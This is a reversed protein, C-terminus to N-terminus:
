INRKYVKEYVLAINERELSKEHVKVSLSLQISQYLFPLLTPHEIDILKEPKESRFWCIWNPEGTFHPDPFFNLICLSLNKQDEYSLLLTIKRYIKVCQLWVLSRSHLFHELLKSWYNSMISGKSYTMDTMNQTKQNFTKRNMTRFFKKLIKKTCM